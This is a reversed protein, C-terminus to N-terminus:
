PIMPEFKANQIWSGNSKTAWLGIWKWSSPNPGMSLLSMMLLLGNARRKACCILRRPRALRGCGLGDRPQKLLLARPVGGCHRGKSGRRKWGAAQTGWWLPDFWFWIDNRSSIDSILNQHSWQDDESQCFKIFHYIYFWYWSIYRYWMAHFDYYLDYARPM